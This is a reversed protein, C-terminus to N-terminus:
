PAVGGAAAGRRRMVFALVEAVAMYLEVPIPLGVRATSLLARALPKNEVIPVGSDQAIAKIREAIKREGLAVVLPAPAQDADYRLACAIQTPNTIVVDSDPVDRFMKKRALSRGMSRLRARVMLDGETEKQERKVEERSMKLNKEHRWVQYGYDAAALVLYALGAILLLQVAYRHVMAAFSPPSLQPLAVIEGYASSLVTYVAFGIITLKLLSKGLEALPQVGLLRKANKLPSIRSWQPKVPKLSIIGRAQVGAALLGAAALCVLLPGLVGLTRWGVAGLWEATGDTGLPPAPISGLSYYFLRALAGGVQSGGFSLVAAAALLIIATTVENSRAVQGKQLAERRRKPTPAENKEQFSSDQSM